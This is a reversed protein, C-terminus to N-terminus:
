RGYKAFATHVTSFLVGAPVASPPATKYLMDAIRGQPGQVLLQLITWVFANATFGSLNGFRSAGEAWADALRGIAVALVPEDVRLVGRQLAVGPSTAGKTVRQVLSGVRTRGWSRTRWGRHRAVDTPIELSVRRHTFGASSLLLNVRVGGANSNPRIRVMGYEQEVYAGFM